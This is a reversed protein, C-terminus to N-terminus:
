HECGPLHCVCLGEVLVEKDMHKVILITLINWQFGNNISPLPTMIHCNSLNKKQHKSISMAYVFGAGECMISINTNDQACNEIAGEKQGRAGTEEWAPTASYIAQSWSSPKSSPPFSKFSYGKPACHLFSPSQFSMPSLLELRGEKQKREM